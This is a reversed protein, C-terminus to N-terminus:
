PCSVTVKDRTTWGAIQKLNHIYRYSRPFTNHFEAFLASIEKSGRTYGLIRYVCQGAKSLEIRTAKATKESLGYSLYHNLWIAYEFLYKRLKAQGAHPFKRVIYHEIDDRVCDRDRDIGHITNNGAPGPHRPLWTQVTETREPTPIVFFNDELPVVAAGKPIIKITGATEAPRCGAKKLAAEEEYAMRRSEETSAPQTLNSHTVELEHEETEFYESGDPAIYRRVAYSASNMMLFILMSAMLVTIRLM